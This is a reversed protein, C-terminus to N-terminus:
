QSRGEPMLDAIAERFCEVCEYGCVRLRATVEIVRAWGQPAVTGGSDKGCTICCVSM